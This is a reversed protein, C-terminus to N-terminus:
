PRGGAPQAQADTITGGGLVRDAEYVVGAQGRGASYLDGQVDLVVGAETVSRVRAAVAAGRHRVQLELDQGVCPAKGTLWNCTGLTVQAVRLAERDGVVVTGDARKDLVFRPAEGPARAPLGLGHRQGVTFGAIGAHQGLRTGEADVIHGPVAGVRAEVYARASRNGVFCIDMSEAKQATALGLREAHGRM